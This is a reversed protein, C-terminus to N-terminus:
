AAAKMTAKFAAAVRNDGTVIDVDGDTLNVSKARPAAQDALVGPTKDYKSALGQLIAVATEIAAIKDKIQAVDRLIDARKVDLAKLQDGHADRRRANVRGVVGTKHIMTERLGFARSGDPRNYGDIRSTLRGAYFRYDSVRFGFDSARVAESMLSATALSIAHDDGGDVIVNVLNNVKSSRWRNQEQFKDQFKNM